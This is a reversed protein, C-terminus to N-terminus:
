VMRWLTVVEFAIISRSKGDRCGVWALFFHSRAAGLGGYSSWFSVLDVYGTWCAAAPATVASWCHEVDDWINANDESWTRRNIESSCYHAGAAAAAWTTPCSSPSLSYTLPTRHTGPSPLPLWYRLSSSLIEPRQVLAAAWQHPHDAPLQHDDHLIMISPPRNPMSHCAPRSRHDIDMLRIVPITLCDNSTPQM